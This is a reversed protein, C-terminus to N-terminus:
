NMCRHSDVPLILGSASPRRTSPLSFAKTRQHMAQLRAIEASNPRLLLTRGAAVEDLFSLQFGTLKQNAPELVDGLIKGKSDIQRSLWFFTVAVILLLAASVGAPFWIMWPHQRTRGSDFAAAAM